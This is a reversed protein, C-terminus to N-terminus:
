SLVRLQPSAIPSVPVRGSSRLCRIEIEAKRDRDHNNGREVRSELERRRGIRPREVHDAHRVGTEQESKRLLLTRVFPRQPRGVQLDRDIVAERADLVDRGVLRIQAIEIAQRQPIPSQDELRLHPREEHHRRRRRKRQHERDQEGGAQDSKVQERALQAKGTRRCRNEREAHERQLVHLQPPRRGSRQDREKGPNQEGAQDRHRGPQANGHQDPDGACEQEGFEIDDRNGREYEGAAEGDHRQTGFTKRM